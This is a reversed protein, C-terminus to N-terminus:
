NFLSYTFDKCFHLLLCVHLPCLQGAWTRLNDRGEGKSEGEGEGKM